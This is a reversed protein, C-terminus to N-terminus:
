SNVNWISFQISTDSEIFISGGGSTSITSDQILIDNVHSIFIDEGFDATIIQNSIEFISNPDSGTLNITAAHTVSFGLLVSLILIQSFM